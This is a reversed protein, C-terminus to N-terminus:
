PVESHFVRREPVLPVPFLHPAAVGLLQQLGRTRARLYIWRPMTRGGLRSKLEYSTQGLELSGAGAAIAEAVIRQVLAGYAGAKRSLPEELGVLLFIWRSPSMLVMVMGPIASGVRAQWVRIDGPYEHLLRVFFAQPLVELRHSAHCMVNLYLRHLRDPDIDRRVETVTVGARRAQEDTALWQRRYGARMSSVYDAVSRWRIDLRCAPLSPVKLWGDAQLLDLHVAEADSCEKICLLPTRCDDGLRILTDRAARIVCNASDPRDWRIMSTGFSVPLGCFAVPVRLFGPWRSRLRSVMVQFGSDALLDLSVSMRFFAATGILQREEEVALFRLESDEIRSEQCVRVFAHEALRDDRAVLRQWDAPPLDAIRPLIRLNVNVSDSL